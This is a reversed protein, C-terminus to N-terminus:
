GSEACQEASTVTCLVTMVCCSQRVQLIVRFVNAADHESFHGRKIIVDFLEGALLM